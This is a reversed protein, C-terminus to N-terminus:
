GALKKSTIDNKVKDLVSTFVQILFEKDAACDQLRLKPTLDILKESTPLNKHHYLHISAHRICIQPAPMGPLPPICANRRSTRPLSTRFPPSSKPTPWPSTSTPPHPATLLCTSTNPSPFAPNSQLRRRRCFNSTSAYPTPSLFCLIFSLDINCCMKDGVTCGVTCSAIHLIPPRATHNMCTAPPPLLLLLFPM